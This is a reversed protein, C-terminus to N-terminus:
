CGFSRWRVHGVGPHRYSSRPKDHDIGNRVREPLGSSTPMIFAMWGEATHDSSNPKVVPSSILRNCGLHIDRTARRCVDVASENEGGNPIVGRGGGLERRGDHTGEPPPAPSSPFDRCKFEKRGFACSGSGTWMRADFM